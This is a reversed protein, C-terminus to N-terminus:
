WSSKTGYLSQYWFTFSAAPLTVSCELISVLRSYRSSARTTYTLRAVVVCMVQLWITPLRMYCVCTVMSKSVRSKDAKRVSHCLGNVTNVRMYCLEGECDETKLCIVISVHKIRHTVTLHIWQKKPHHNPVVRTMLKHLYLIINALEVLLSNILSCSGFVASPVSM